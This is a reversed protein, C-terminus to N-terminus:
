AISLMRVLDVCTQELFSLRRLGDFGIRRKEVFVGLGGLRCDGRDNM